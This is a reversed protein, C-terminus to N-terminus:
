NRKNFFIEAYIATTPATTSSDALGTVCAFSMGGIFSYQTNDKNHEQYVTSNAPILLTKVVTTSGVTVTGSSADYFKVYVDSTNPNIINWGTLQIHTIGSSAIGVPVNTLATDRYVRPSNSGSTDLHQSM